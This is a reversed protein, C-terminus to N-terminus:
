PGPGPGASRSAPAAAAHRRQRAAKAEAAAQEQLLQSARPALQRQFVALTYDLLLAAAPACIVASLWFQPAGLVAQGLGCLPALGVVSGCLGQLVALFLLWAGLTGWVLAHSM